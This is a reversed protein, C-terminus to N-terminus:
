TLYSANYSDGLSNYECTTLTVVLRSMNLVVTITRAAIAKNLGALGVVSCRFKGETLENVCFASLAAPVRKTM